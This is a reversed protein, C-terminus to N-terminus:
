TKRLGQNGAAWVIFGFCFLAGIWGFHGVIALAMLALGAAWFGISWRTDEDAERWGAKLRNISSRTASWTESM